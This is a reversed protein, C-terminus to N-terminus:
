CLRSVAVGAIGTVWAVLTRVTIACVVGAVGNEGAARRVQSNVQDIFFDVYKRPLGCSPPM